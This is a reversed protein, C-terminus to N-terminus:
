VKRLADDVFCTLMKESFWEHWREAYTNASNYGLRPIVPVESLVRTLDHHM